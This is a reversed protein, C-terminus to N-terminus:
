KKNKKKSIRRRGPDVRGAGSKGKGVSKRAAPAATSQGMNDSTVDHCSAKAHAGREVFTRRQHQVGIEPREAIERQRQPGPLVRHLRDEEVANRYERFVVAADMRRAALEPQSRFLTTYPFLTDTRTSRPPRRIM